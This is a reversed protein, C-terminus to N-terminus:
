KNLEKEEQEQLKIMINDISPFEEHIGLKEGIHRNLVNYVKDVENKKLKTTSKKNLYAIQIPRWLYEKVMEKNWPIDVDDKLVKKMDFGADNLTEALLEFFLHLAKNQQTTRIDKKLEKKM